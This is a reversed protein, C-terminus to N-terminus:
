GVTKGNTHDRYKLNYFTADKDTLEATIKYSYGYRTHDVFRHWVPTDVAHEMVWRGAESKEWHWLPDAAYIDPDDVDSITFTHVTVKVTEM